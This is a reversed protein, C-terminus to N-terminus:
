KESAAARRNTVAQKVQDLSTPGDPTDLYNTKALEFDPDLKLARLFASRAGSFDGSDLRQLGKAFAAYADWNKTHITRVGEPYDTIGLSQLIEFTIEKQLDFFKGRPGDAEQHGLVAGNNVSAATTNIKYRGSLYNGDGSEDRVTGTIITGARLMRGLRAASDANVLGSSTLKLEGVLADIRARELLKLDPVKALDAMIFALVAKSFHQEPGFEGKKIQYNYFPVIAVHNPDGAVDGSTQERTVAQKAFRRAIERELLTVYGRVDRARQLHPPAKTLYSKWAEVAKQHDGATLADVGTDFLAAHPDSSNAVATKHPPPFGLLRDVEAPSHGGCSALLPLALLVGMMRYLSLSM